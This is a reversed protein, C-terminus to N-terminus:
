VIELEGEKEVNMSLEEEEKAGVEGEVGDEM